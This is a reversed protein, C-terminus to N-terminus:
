LKSLRIILNDLKRNVMILEERIEDRSYRSDSEIRAIKANTEAEIYNLKSHIMEVRVIAGAAFTLCGVSLTLATGILRKKLYELIPNKKEEEEKKDM